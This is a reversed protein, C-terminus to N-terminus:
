SHYKKNNSTYEPNIFEPMKVNIKAIKSMEGIFYASIAPTYTEDIEHMFFYVEQLGQSFWNQLREIWENVRAYDSPHLDYGQFRV